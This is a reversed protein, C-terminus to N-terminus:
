VLVYEKAEGSQAFMSGGAGRFRVTVFVGNDGVLRRNAAVDVPASNCATRKSKRSASRQDFSLGTWGHLFDILDEWLQNPTLPLSALRVPRPRLGGLESSFEGRASNGLLQVGVAWGHLFDNM